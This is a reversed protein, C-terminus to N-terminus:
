EEVASEARPVVAAFRPRRRALKGNGEGTEGDQGEDTVPAEPEPSPTPESAKVNSDQREVLAIMAQALQQNQQLMAQVASAQFGSQTAMRQEYMVPHKKKMHLMAEAENIFKGPCNLSEKCPCDVPRDLEHHLPARPSWIRQGNDQRQRLLRGVVNTPVMVGGETYGSDLRWMRVHTPLPAGDRKIRSKSQNDITVTPRGTAPDAGASAIREGPRADVNTDAFEADINPQFLPTGDDDFMDGIVDEASLAEVAAM